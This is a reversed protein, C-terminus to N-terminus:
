DLYPPELCTIEFVIQEAGCANTLVDIYPKVAPQTAPSASFCKLHKVGASELQSQVIKTMKEVEDAGLLQDYYPLEDSGKLLGYKGSLILFEADNELALQHVYQIRQSIYRDTAALLEEDRRKEKSCYTCFSVSMFRAM